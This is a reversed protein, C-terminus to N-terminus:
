AAAMPQTNVNTFLLANETDIAITSPLLLANQADNLTRKTNSDEDNTREKSLCYKKKAKKIKWRKKKM